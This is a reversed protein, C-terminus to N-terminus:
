LFMAYTVTIQLSVAVTGSNEAEPKTVGDAMAKENTWLDAHGEDSQDIM